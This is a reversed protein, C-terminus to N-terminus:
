AGNVSPKDHMQVMYRRICSKASSALGLSQLVKLNRRMVHKGSSTTDKMKLFFAGFHLCGEELGAQNPQAAAAPESRAHQSCGPIFSGLPLLFCALASQTAASIGASLEDTEMITARCIM